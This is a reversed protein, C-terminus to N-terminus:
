WHHRQGTLLTMIAQHQANLATQQTSMLKETFWAGWTPGPDTLIPGVWNWPRFDNLTYWILIYITRIVIIIFNAKLM